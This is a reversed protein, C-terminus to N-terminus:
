WEGALILPGWISTATLVNTYRLFSEHTISSAMTIIVILYLFLTSLMAWLTGKPIAKSPNRLDGSMSAGAFIGSTAPFLVGFLGRFTDMGKYEPSGSPPYLNSALTHSSMGTFEVGIDVDNFPRRIVASLPISLISIFLIVLLANSAKAFIGSGALCLVTCFVLACTEMLYGQWFGGPIFELNLKLCDILGVVNLATNMVQSLYFLVGISGGFEPGLSRSILYYAGGGKVEGNSAIASLSLVTVLDVFYAIAM